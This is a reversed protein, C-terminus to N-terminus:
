IREGVIAVPVVQAAADLSIECVVRTPARSQMDKDPLLHCDVGDRAKRVCVDEMEVVDREEERLIHEAARAGSCLAVEQANRGAGRFCIVDGVRRVNAEDVIWRWPSM